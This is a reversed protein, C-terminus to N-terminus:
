LAVWDAPLLDQTNRAVAFWQRPAVVIKHLNANLWAGWWSFSSNAIVHHKCLSMLHMDDYAHQNHDVYEVPAPLPLHQRAWSMDDSFIFFVPNDVRSAVHHAAAQYYDPPCLGHTAATVHNQVYDGRRVHVSVANCQRIRTALVANRGSLPLRFGFDSRLTKVHKKFYKESQWYGKLYCRAPTNHIGQWYQFHPEIVLSDKRMPAMAPRAVINQAWRTRQWGLVAQIDLENALHFSGAFAQELQFGEHLRYGKFGSTDLQLQAERDLALARGAAFQFMQNGLGGLIHCIIM